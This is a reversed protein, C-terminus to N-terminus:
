RIILNEREQLVIQFQNHTFSVDNESKMKCDNINLLSKRAIARFFEMNMLLRLNNEYIVYIYSNTNEYSKLEIKSFDLGDILKTDIIKNTRNKLSIILHEGLSLLFDIKDNSQYKITFNNKDFITIKQNVLLCALDGNSLLHLSQIRSDNILLINKTDLSTSDYIIIKNMRNSDSLSVAIDGNELQIISIYNFNRFTNNKLFFLDISCKDTLNIKWLGITGDFSLSALDNNSLSIWESIKPIEHEGTVNCIKSAKSEINLVQVTDDDFNLLISDNQFSIISNVKIAFNKQFYFRNECFNMDNLIFKNFIMDTLNEEYNTANYIRDYFNKNLLKDKFSQTGSGLNKMNSHLLEYTNNLKDNLNLNYEIPLIINDYNIAENINGSKARDSSSDYYDYFEVWPAYADKVATLGLTILHVAKYKYNATIERVYTRGTLGGLGPLGPKGSLGQGFNKLRNDFLKLNEKNLEYILAFGGYGQLGGAGPRGGNGGKQGIDGFYYEKNIQDYSVIGPTGYYSESKYKSNRLM